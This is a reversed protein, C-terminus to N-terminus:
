LLINFKQTLKYLFRNQFITYKVHKYEVFACRGEMQRYLDSFFESIFYQFFCFYYNSALVTMSPYIFYFNIYSPVIFMGVECEMFEKLEFLTIKSKSLHVFYLMFHLNLLKIILMLLKILEKSFILKLNFKAIERVIITECFSEFDHEM